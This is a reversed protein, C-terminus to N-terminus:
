RSTKSGPTEPQSIRNLAADAVNAPRWGLLVNRDWAIKTGDPVRPTGFLRELKKAPTEFDRPVAAAVALAAFLLALVPLLRRM